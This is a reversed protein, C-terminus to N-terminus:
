TEKREQGYKNENGVTRRPQKGKRAAKRTTLKM